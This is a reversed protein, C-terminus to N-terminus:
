ELSALIGQPDMSLKRQQLTTLIPGYALALERAYQVTGPHRQVIYYHNALPALDDFCRDAWECAATAAAQNAAPWVATVVISWEAARGRYASSGVEITNVRGGVHQLDIRCDRNPATTIANSLVAILNQGLDRPLSISYVRTRMRQHRNTSPAFVEPVVGDRDPLEFAPLEELGAVVDSWCDPQHQFDSLADRHTVPAVAYSLIEPNSQHPPFGLILSCSGQEPLSEALRLIDHLSEISQLRRVVQLRSRVNTKLTAETIVALFVAAGRLLMWLEQDSDAATIAFPQGSATVGRLEEIHDLTLGLSRSLHGIGGMTLLGFGPTPHTGVPLMRKSPALVQLLRGMNAGAQVTVRDGHHQIQHFGASLDLMLTGSRSCLASHSGSCVSISLGQDKALQIAEVVDDTCHAQVILTPNEASATGNNLGCLASEYARSGPCFIRQQLPM